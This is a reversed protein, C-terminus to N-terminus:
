HHMSDAKNLSMIIKGNWNRDLEPTGIQSNYDKIQYIWENM